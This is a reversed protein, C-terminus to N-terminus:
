VAGRLRRVEGAQLPPISVMTEAELVEIREGTKGRFKKIAEVAEAATPYGAIYLATAYAPDDSEEEGVWVRVCWGIPENM